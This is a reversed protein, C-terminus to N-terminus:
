CFFVYTRYAEMSYLQTFLIFVQYRTFIPSFFHGFGLVFGDVKLDPFVDGASFILEAVIEGRFVFVRLPEVAGPVGDPSGQGDEGPFALKLRTVAAADLTALDLDNSPEDLLLVTPDSLLLRLLQAKVKEGGSLTGMSQESYYFDKALGLQSAKRVTDGPAYDYFSPDQEFFEQVSLAKDEEALEQPLYGFKEGTAICEGKAEAYGEILGPEYIWKLLTSKGNGEEGIIVAKDGKRLTFSCNELLVKLDKLHSITLNKIQLM